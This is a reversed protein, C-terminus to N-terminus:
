SRDDMLEDVDIFPEDRDDAVPEDDAVVDPEPEFEPEMHPAVPMAPADPWGQLMRWVDAFYREGEERAHMPVGFGRSVFRLTAPKDPAQAEDLTVRFRYTRREHHPRSAGIISPHREVREVRRYIELRAQERDEWVANEVLHWQRYEPTEAVARAAAWVSSSHHDPYTESVTTCGGSLMVLSLLAAALPCGRGRPEESSRSMMSNMM